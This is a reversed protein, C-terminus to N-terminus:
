WVVVVFPILFRVVQAVKLTCVFVRITVLPSDERKEAVIKTAIEGHQSICRRINKFPLSDNERGCDIFRIFNVGEAEQWPTKMINPFIDTLHKTRQHEVYGKIDDQPYKAKCSLCIFPYKPCKPEHAKMDSGAFGCKNPCKPLMTAALSELVRQRTKVKDTCSPCGRDAKLNPDCKGCWLHGNGCGWIEKDMFEFCITCDFAGDEIKILKEPRKEGKGSKDDEDPHEKRKMLHGLLLQIRFDCTKDIPEVRHNQHALRAMHHVAGLSRWQFQVCDFLYLSFQRIDAFLEDPAIQGQLRQRMEEVDLLIGVVVRATCKLVVFQAKERFENTEERWRGITL